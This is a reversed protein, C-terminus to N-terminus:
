EANPEGAVDQSLGEQLVRRITRSLERLTYPKSLLQVETNMLIENVVVSQSYGSSYLVKLRPHLKTAKDALEIGNLGGPLMVDTFLLDIGAREQIIQLAERGSTAEIVRYGLSGLESTVLELLAKDDEVVVIVESGRSVDILSSDRDEMKSTQDIKPIYLEVTTGQGIESHIKIHGKSQKVFGHVMSLGLGTGKGAGKTTFFPDFVHGLDESSIGTGTDSVKIRVYQGPAVEPNQEAYDSWLVVSDAEITLKGGNPMADRSNLVLNLIANELQAPDVVADCGEGCRAVSLEIDSSLTRRLLGQLDALLQDVSIPRAQLAQRRAFALMHHTLEAGRRGADLIMEVMKSLRPNDKVEGEICEACGLVVTLLNNFDHAIGGTLQGVTEMKQAQHYQEELQKRETIDRGVVVAGIVTGEGDRLPSFSFSGFWKEGTDKRRLTYEVNSDTEGRLARAVPWLNGPVLVGDLTSVDLLEYFDSLRKVCEGKSNFKYFSAFAENIHSFQGEADSILVADTMSALAVDLKKREAARAAEARKRDTTDQAIGLLVLDSTVSDKLPAAHIELWRRSGKLGEVECEIMGSEGKCVQSTLERFADRDEPVVSQWISKGIIQEENDAEFATLGARNITLVTGDATILFICNPSTGIIASLHAERALLSRNAEELQGVKAELKHILVESYQKLLVREDEVPSNAPSLDGREARALVEHIREMFPIPEAPKVIFDDAGMNLALEEDKIDTYTATYVIFPIQKLHQDSKWQRLLTFGDMIPMLLDSIVLEPHVSRAIGLADAGNKASIVEYGTSSLLTQLYYLNEDNDDVILIKQM